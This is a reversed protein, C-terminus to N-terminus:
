EVYPYAMRDLQVLYPAGIVAPCAGTNRGYADLVRGRVQDQWVAVAHRQVDSLRGTIPDLNMRGTVVGQVQMQWRISRLGCFHVYEAQASSRVAGDWRREFAQLEAGGVTRPAPGCIDRQHDADWGKWNSCPAKSAAQLALAAIATFLM